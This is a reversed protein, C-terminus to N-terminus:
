KNQQRYEQPTMGVQEKFVKTFYSSYSIGVRASVDTISLNTKKLLQKAVIIRKSLIYDSISMGTEKKFIRGLYGASVHVMSALEERQLNGVSLNEAIIKKVSDVIAESQSDDIDEVLESLDVKKEAALIKNEIALIIKELEDYPVPKLLYDEVGLRLAEQAYTFDAHGTYFVAKVDPANEKVWRILEIGNGNPMEIDTIVIDIPHNQIMRISSDRSHCKYVKDVNLMEWDVGEELGLLALEEDDTLLINFRRM